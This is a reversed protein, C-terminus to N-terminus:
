RAAESELYALLDAVDTDMLDDLLGEPMLSVDLSWFEEIDVRLVTLVNGDVLGITIANASEEKIIGTLSQGDKLNFVYAMYGPYVEANPDIVNVLISERGRQIASRLDPALPSAGEELSHCSACRQVFVMEGFEPSGEEELAAKLREYVAEKDDSVAPVVPTEAARSERSDPPRFAKHLAAKLSAHEAPIRYVADVARAITRADATRATLAALQDLSAAAHEANLFETDSALRIFVDGAGSALSSLAATRIWSDAGDHKLAATLAVIRRDMPFHAAAFAAQYRVHPNGDYALPVLAEVLASSLPTASDALRVAHVRVWPDSDGLADILTEEALSDMGALTYLAQIRGIDWDADRALKEVSDVVDTDRREYLLRAATERHWANPHALFPVLEASSRDGLREPPRPVYGKPAIRWIRGRDNGSTLDLHRKIVPPLSDPHEIVERYMDAAYLTGDPANAFQVPRFWIDRSAVFEVGPRARDATLELGNQQVVKRHILNSGVDGLILQGRYSEPWADGRYVTIGTGSTFYGAPTGGGELPGPVLGQARLRTRVLRWPEVPSIRFVDAQPGDLAISIRAGPPAFNPNRAVFRDEYMLMQAHDSNHCVFKRGVDDFSLGHQAGGSEARIELTRPDFSFDRGRLVLPEAGDDNAPLIRAGSGSTAGHIRNDLSWNFSNLLGQVNDLGFGTFVREIRDARRDGDTDKAYFIDPPVGVFIGGDYCAVATPWPLKDLFVHSEDMVGDGDSDELLRIASLHEERQESYGRMEVVYMRGFEDFAMAIPDYVLPESAVLQMDFEPHTEFSRLADGPELPEIRPLEAAFDTDVSEQAAIKLTALLLLLVLSRM